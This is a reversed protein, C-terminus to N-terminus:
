DDKLYDGIFFDRNKYAHIYTGVEEGNIIRHINGLDAANAIVM